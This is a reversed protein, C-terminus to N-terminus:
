PKIFIFTFVSSLVVQCSLFLMAVSNVTESYNNTWIVITLITQGERMCDLIAELSGTQVSIKYSWTM